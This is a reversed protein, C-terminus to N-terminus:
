RSRRLREVERKVLALEGARSRVRGDLRARLLRSLLMRYRPGEEVGLRKLDHGSVALRVARLTTLYHVLRARGRTGGRRPSETMALWLLLLPIPTLHLLEYVRSSAMREGACLARLTAATRGLDETCLRRLRKTLPLRRCVEAAQTRHLSQILTLLSVEWAEVEGAPLRPRWATSVRATAALRTDLRSTWRLAPHVAAMLGLQSWRRVVARARPEALGLRLEHLLRHGSLRAPIAEDVAEILWRRTAPELHFGLRQEYRVARFARTPDDHFSRAHLARIVSALLDRRGGCDDMLAGYGAGDLRIAMANITLDRRRLDESISAPEVTPLAAPARYTERRATAVDLRQGNKFIVTATGFPERRLVARGARRGLWEAFALGNGEVVIDVDRTRSGLLLDRVFGGVAYAPVGLTEATRRVVRLVQAVQIPLRRDLLRRVDQRM